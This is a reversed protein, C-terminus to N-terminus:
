IRLVSKGKVNSCINRHWKVHYITKNKIILQKKRLATLAYFPPKFTPIFPRQRPGYAELSDESKHAQRMLHELLGRRDVM